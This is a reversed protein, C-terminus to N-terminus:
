PALRQWSEVPTRVETLGGTALDVSRVTGWAEVKGADDVGPKEAFVLSRGDPSWLFDDEGFTSGEPVVTRFDAGESDVVGVNFETGKAVRFALHRGDPSWRLGDVQLQYEGVNVTVSTNLRGDEAVDAIRLGGDRDDSVFAIRQGDPSWAFPHGISVWRVNTGNADALYIRSDDWSDDAQLTGRFLIQQRGPRWAASIVHGGAGVHLTRSGSGDSAIVVTQYWEEGSRMGSSLLARGDPSWSLDWGPDTGLETLNAGDPTVAMIKTGDPTQRRFAIRDGQPSFLPSSDDDPGAVLPRPTGGLEDAIFLDGAEAYVVAGNGYVSPTRVRQSGIVLVTAVLAVILLALMVLALIPRQSRTRAMSSQMPIWRGPLTWGPRQGVRRTAALARELGDGPGSEPGERLWDAIVRDNSENM